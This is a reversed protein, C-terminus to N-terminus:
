AKGAMYDPLWREHSQRLTALPLSLGTYSLAEGGAVGVVSVKVEAEAAQATVLHVAAEDVALLYRAQDEAFAFVHDDLDSMNKLELGINSALAM